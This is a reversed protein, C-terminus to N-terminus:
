SRPTGMDRRERDVERDVSHVAARVPDAAAIARPRGASGAPAAGEGDGEGVPASLAAGAGAPVSSVRSNTGDVFFGSSSRSSDPAARRWARPSRAAAGCTPSVRDQSALSSM